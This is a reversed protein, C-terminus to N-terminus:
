PGTMDTVGFAEPLRNWPEILMRADSLCYRLIAKREKRTWSGEKDTILKRMREKEEDSTPTLGLARQMVLLNRKPLGLDCTARRFEVLLDLHHEPMPWGMALFFGLDARGEFDVFLADPGLKLPCDPPPHVGHVWLTGEEGSIVEIWAICVPTQLEGPKQKFETDVLYVRKFGARTM